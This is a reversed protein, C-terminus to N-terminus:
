PPPAGVATHAERSPGSTVSRSDETRASHPTRSHPTLNTGSAIVYSHRIAAPAPGCNMTAREARAVYGAHLHVSCAKIVERLYNENVGLPLRLFSILNLRFRRFKFVDYLPAPYQTLV